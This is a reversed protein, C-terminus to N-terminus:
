RGGKGEQEFGMNMAFEMAFDEDDSLEIHETHTIVTQLIDYYSESKLALMAGTGSANGIPVVKNKFEQPILGITVASDIDIFNGFGGALYFADIDKFQLKALKCLINIGSRIASKALQLERIDNQTISIKDHKSEEPNGYIIFEESLQGDDKLLDNHLLFAALDILGSGCIGKPPINGITLFNNDEYTNIAGEVAPMGCSINAGEFAPGAATACAYIKKGKILAMEGNTGIDIYLYNKINNIKQLSAIGCVIDAGIYASISPLIIVEGDANTHLNLSSAKLHKQDLFVPKFPVFALPSPDEGLLLHLMTTNGSITIKVIENLSVKEGEVFETINENIIRITEQQIKNLGKENQICYNIRSIIDAGYKVQPNVAAKTEVLAGTILNVLYFVMTTTGIDIAIGLPYSSLKASDGPDLPLARTYKYQSVLIKSETPDPLSVEIDNDIEYLCSTVYGENKIYVKCKGCTGNGGCPSYIEFQAKFLEFMLNSGHTVELETSKEKTHIKIIPM